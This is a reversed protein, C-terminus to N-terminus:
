KSKKNEQGIVVLLLEVSVQKVASSAVAAISLIGSHVREPSEM